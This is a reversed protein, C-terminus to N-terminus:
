GLIASNSDYQAIEMRKFTWRIMALFGQWIGLSARPCKGVGVGARGIGAERAQNQGFDDL